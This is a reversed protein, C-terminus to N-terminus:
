GFLHREAIVEAMRIADESQMVGFQVEEPPRQPLDLQMFARVIQTDWELLKKEIKAVAAQQKVSSKPLCFVRNLFGRIESLTESLEPETAHRFARAKLSLDIYKEYIGGSLNWSAIENSKKRLKKIVPDYLQRKLDEGEYSIVCDPGYHTMLLNHARWYDQAELHLSIATSFDWFYEFGLAKAEYIFNEPVGIRILFDEKAQSSPLHRKLMEKVSPENNPTNQLVLIAHTWNGALELEDALMYGLKALTHLLSQYENHITQDEVMSDLINSNEIYLTLSHLILWATGVSFNETHTYPHLVSPLKGLNHKPDSYFELLHYCLDKHEESFRSGPFSQYSPNDFESKFANFCSALDENYKESFRLVLALGRIWELHKVPELDGSLLRYIMLVSEPIYILKGETEWDLLQRKLKDKFWRTPTMSLLSALYFQNSELAETVAEQVKCNALYELITELSDGTQISPFFWNNWAKLWDWLAKKRKAKLKESEEVMQVESVWSQLSFEDQLVQFTDLDASGFLVNMLTWIMANNTDRQSLHFSAMHKWFRQTWMMPDDDNCALMIELEDKIKENQTNLNVKLISGLKNAPAFFEGEPGLNVRFRENLQSKVVEPEYTQQMAEELGIPRRPEPEVLIPTYTSDEESAISDATPSVVEEEEDSEDILGYKTFHEVRFKWFGTQPLCELQKFNQKESVSLAASLSKLSTQYLTIISPKNLSSSKFSVNPPYVEVYNKHIWVISDLDLDLLNTSDLFEIKGHQNYITFHQVNSLQSKSLKLLESFPPLTQYGEKTLVPFESKSSSSDWKEM